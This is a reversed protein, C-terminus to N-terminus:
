EGELWKDIAIKNFRWESGIKRAPMNGYKAQRYVHVLSIQLYDAVEKATMAKTPKAYIIKTPM